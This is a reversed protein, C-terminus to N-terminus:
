RVRFEPPPLRRAGEYFNNFPGPLDNVDAHRLMRDNVDSSRDILLGVSIALALIAFFFYLIPQKYAFRFRRLLHELLMLLLVDVILLPWPFLRLFIAIGSPGYSMLHAHGSVRMSFFILNFLFVSVLLIVLGLLAVLVMRLLFYARPRMSLKNEKIKHLINEKITDKTHEM